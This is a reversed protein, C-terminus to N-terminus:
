VLALNLGGERAYIVKGREAQSLIVKTEKTLMIWVEPLEKVIESSFKM